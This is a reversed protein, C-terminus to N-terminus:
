SEGFGEMYKPNSSLDPPGNKICGILGARQTREYLSEGNKAPEPMSQQARWERLCKELSVTSEKALKKRAFDAFAELETINSAM